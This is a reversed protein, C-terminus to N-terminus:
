APIDPEGRRPRQRQPTTRAPFLARFKSPAPPPGELVQLQPRHRRIEAALQTLPMAVMSGPVAVMPQKLLARWWRQMRWGVSTRSQAFGDPDTLVIELLREATSGRGIERKRIVTIEDWRILGTPSLSTRDTIGREDIILTPGPRVARLLLVVMAPLLLAIGFWGISQMVPGAYRAPIWLIAISLLCTGVLLLLRLRPPGIVTRDGGSPLHEASM